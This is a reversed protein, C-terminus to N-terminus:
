QRSLPADFVEHSAVQCDAPKAHPADVRYAYNEPKVITTFPHPGGPQLSHCGTAALLLSTVAIWRSLTKRGHCNM